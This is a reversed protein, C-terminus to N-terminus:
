KLTLIDLYKDFLSSNFIPKGILKIQKSNDILFCHYQDDDPLVNNSVFRDEEDYFVNIRCIEKKQSFLGKLDETEPVNVIFVIDAINDAEAQRNAFAYLFDDWFQLEKLTCSRCNRLNMFTVIHNGTVSNEVVEEPVYLKAGLFSEPSSSDPRHGCSSVSLMMCQILLIDAVLKIRRNSNM